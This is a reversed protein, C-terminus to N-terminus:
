FFFYLKAVVRYDKEDERTAIICELEQMATRWEELSEPPMDFMLFPLQFSYAQHVTNYLEHATMVSDFIERQKYLTDLEWDIGYVM